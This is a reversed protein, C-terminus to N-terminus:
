VRLQLVYCTPTEHIVQAYPQWSDATDASRDVIFFEVTAARLASYSEETAREAFDDVIRIREQLWEPYTNAVYFPGDVFTRRELYSSVLYYKEDFVYFQDRDKWQPIRFWNSAIIADDSTQKRVIELCWRTADAGFYTHLRSDGIQSLQNYKMIRRVQGGDSTIVLTFSLAIVLPITMHWRRLKFWGVLLVLLLCQSVLIALSIYLVRERSWEMDHAYWKGILILFGISLATLVSIGWNRSTSIRDAFTMSTRRVLFAVSLFTGVTILPYFFRIEAGGMSILNALSLSTVAVIGFLTLASKDKTSRWEAFLFGVLLQSVVFLFLISILIVYAKESGVYMDLGGFQLINSVSINPNLNNDSSSALLTRRLVLLIFVQTMSMAAFMILNSRRRVTMWGAILISVAVFHIGLTVQTMTILLTLLLVIAVSALLGNRNGPVHLRFDSLVGLGILFLAIGWLSGVSYVDFTHGLIITAGAAIMSTTVGFNFRIGLQILARLCTLVAIAPTIRTVSEIATIPLLRALVGAASEGLWHYRFSTGTAAIHDNVGWRSLGAALASRFGQDFSLWFQAESHRLQFLSLAFGLPLLFYSLQRASKNSVAKSIVSVVLLSLLYLRLSQWGLVTLLGTFVLALHLPDVQTLQSNQPDVHRRNRVIAQQVTFGLILLSTITLSIALSGTVATVFSVVSLWVVLSSLPDHWLYKGISTNRFVQECLIILVAMLILARYETGVLALIPVLALLISYSQSRARLKADFLKVRDFYKTTM